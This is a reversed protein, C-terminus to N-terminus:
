PSSTKKKNLRKTLEEQYLRAKKLHEGYDKSFVSTGDFLHSAVFFLYETSPAQLVADIAAISPLCIPGPPLGAHLYTNYPSEHRLHAFTVRKAGFDGSGFKASPDAQLRMNTRLRNLYTSAILPRDPGHQTEEEVISALIHVETPNLNITEAQRKRTANWFVNWSKMFTQYVQHPSDTWYIEFTLPLLRSMVTLTDVGFVKLSDNSRLFRIWAMSDARTFDSRQMKSAFQYPTRLRTRENGLILKIPTQRGKALRQLLQYLNEGDSVLYSGPKVSRLGMIRASGTLWSANSLMGKEELQKGVIEIPTDTYLQLRNEKPNQVLPHLFVWMSGGLMLLVVAITIRLRM